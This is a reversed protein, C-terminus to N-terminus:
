EVFIRIRVRDHHDAFDAAVRLLRRRGVDLRVDLLGYDSEDGALGRRGSAAHPVRAGDNRAAAALSFIFDGRHLGRADSHACRRSFDPFLNLASELISLVNAMMLGSATAAPCLPSIM